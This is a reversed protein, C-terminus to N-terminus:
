GKRSLFMLKVRGYKKIKDININIEKIGEVNREEEDTEIIVIGNQALLDLELIRKLANIAFNTKYPPDLFIIDFKMNKDRLIELCRIYDDNIVISSEKLKTKEINKSIIKIAEKNKDCFVATKAGRSLSEIGLAGSGSFLDLVTSDLIKNQIISFLPEKVRDLTPRTNEGLLTVLKTGRASGSIIRM